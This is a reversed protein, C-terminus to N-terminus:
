KLIRKARVSQGVCHTVGFQNGAADEGDNDVARVLVVCEGRVPRHAVRQRGWQEVHGVNDRSM